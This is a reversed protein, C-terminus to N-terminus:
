AKDEKNDVNTKCSERTPDYDYSVFYKIDKQVSDQIM